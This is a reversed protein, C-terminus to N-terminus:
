ATRRPTQAPPGQNYLDSLKRDERMARSFGEALSACKKEEVLKGARKKIEAVAESYTTAEGETGAGRRDDGHGRESLNLPKQAATFKEMDGIMFADRQAEVVKGESLMVDFKNKKEAALADSAHKM